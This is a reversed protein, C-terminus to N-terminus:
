GRTKMLNEAGEEAALLERAHAFGSIVRAATRSMAEYDETVIFKM